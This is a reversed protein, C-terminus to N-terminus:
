KLQELVDLAKKLKEVGGLQDALRKADLLDGASLGGTARPGRKAGRTATATAAGEGAGRGGRRRRRKIGMKKMLGSVQPSTVTVGKESLDAIVDRPRAKRGLRAIADRIADAKSMEATSSQSRRAM